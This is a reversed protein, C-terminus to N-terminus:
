GRASVDGSGPDGEHGQIGQVRVVPHVPAAFIIALQSDRASRDAFLYERRANFTLAQCDEDACEAAHRSPGDPGQFVPLVTRLSDHCQQWYGRGGARIEEFIQNSLVGSVLGLVFGQAGADLSISTLAVLVLLATTAAIVAVPVLLRSLLCSFRWEGFTQDHRVLARRAARPAWWVRAALCVATCAVGAGALWYAAPSVNM